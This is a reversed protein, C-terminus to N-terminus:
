ADGPAGADVPINDDAAAAEDVVSPTTSSERAQKEIDKKEIILQQLQKEIEPIEVYRNFINLVELFTENTTIGDKLYYIYTKSIVDLINGLLINANDSKSEEHTKLVPLLGGEILEEMNTLEVRPLSVKETLFSTLTVIAHSSIEQCPNSCQHALAQCITFIETKGLEFKKSNEILQSTLDISRLSIRVLAQYPNKNDVQHGSQISMKYEQEWRAGVSGVSSIEDLLGLILMFNTSTMFCGDKALSKALYDFIMETHEKISANMRLLKWFGEDELMVSKYNDVNTLELLRRIVETGTDSIFYKDTYLDRKTVLEDNIVKLLNDPQQDLLSILLIKYTLLRRHTGKKSGPLQSFTIIKELTENGLSGGNKCFVLMAVSLELLFLTEAEFFKDNENNRELKISNLLSQILGPTINKENGFLAAAVHSSEICTMARRSYHIEEDTPEEDGKLYSAFTSLLGKNENSKMIAAQSSPKPLKGIKLNSQLDSFIDPSILLNEYLTLLIKVIDNWLEPIIIESDINRQLIRFLVVTCLQGKFSRGLRIIESSVPVKKEQGEITVEVLPIDDVDDNAVSAANANKKNSPKIKLLTTFRAIHRLIDNYLTKFNFFSAIFSCKDLTTLMRSSIHDDSAVKYIKFLTSVIANGVHKFIARDFLLLELSSLKDIINTSDRQIETLVTTSSILNNWADEFWQENGHHEEPMVIEKDRISCYIKDLYWHPFDKENCCGRLNGSYDNFSMHEKVQPNHLDTNLMIISYSLVFVSDSDPQVTSIDEIQESEETDGEVRSEANDTPSSGLDAEEELDNGTEIPKYDQNDVYKTSFAEIIREIQQSEGPLRFKTLLIRIAEDVRLGKFDFLDIFCKLLPTRKPNCLLLGITRKNMRSNNEFLFEAIDEDSNSKIFGKEILSPIGLKPNENFLEASKIFETKRERQKLIENIKGNFQKMYENRDVDQMHDFMDDVLSILGELCIPPVSDTTSIAAEPLSLKTLAKIINVSVDSRELNCDFNIFMSTFFSPSRTWLISIQEILLEKIAPSKPQYENATNISTSSANNPTMTPNNAETTDDLLMSFIRTLTLEIQMPLHNGLILVLSTFLQLAGQLLSLKNTNQIIYFICKFIPDSILTFLPPYLPFKDGVIEIITNILQLAFIRTSNTHKAQNEPIILSLLLSLYQKALPLGYTGSSITLDKEKIEVKLKNTENEGDTDENQTAIAEQETNQLEFPQKEIELNTGVEDENSSLVSEADNSAVSKDDVISPVIQMTPQESEQNSIVIVDDKLTNKSYGEDNIYKETSDLPEMTKLSSFIKLTIITMTSEAAKRLVETRRKNCALSMITQVIDYMTSDTLLEGYPSNILDQLLLVVKLLVSDDSLQESGEFRCHTLANAVERYAGIYNLSDFNIVNLTFFKQLSDLALSTIYGSISSTSITLLFPQLLTLSDIGDLSNLKNLMLRLQIFGSLFPDNHKNASLNNFTHALSADQNSFIESGGGLLAAVGSSQSAIKSYKRIATSLNICEKIVITVPDVATMLEKSDM